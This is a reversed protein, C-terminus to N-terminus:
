CSCSANKSIKDNLAGLDRETFYGNEFANSRYDKGNDILIAACLGHFPSHTTYAVARCFAEM